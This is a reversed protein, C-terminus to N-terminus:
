AEEVFRLFRELFKLGAAGSKEPHFQAGFVQEAAVSAAVEGGYDCTAVTEEGVPPAFSHVFFMWDGAESAPLLASPRRISLQNWQIQPHRVGEPLRSVEGSFVGLGKAEPSEESREYLLQFGVCIGLFPVGRAIQQVLAETWGQEELAAACRGFSGVGPLVLGSADSIAGPDTILRAEAGVKLLAKHASRLNGIGYDIVAILKSV